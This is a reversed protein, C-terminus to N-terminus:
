ISDLFRKVKEIKSEKWIRIAIEEPCGIIDAVSLILKKSVTHPKNIARHIYAHNVHAKNAIQRYSLGSLKKYKEMKM